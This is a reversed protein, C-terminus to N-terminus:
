PANLFKSPRYDLSAIEPFWNRKVLLVTVLGIFSGAIVDSLFHANLIVRSFAIVAAFSFFAWWLRPWFLIVIMAAVFITQSHGSPFSNYSWDVNLPSLGYEERSLLHKPRVRGLLRKLSHVVIGSMAYCILSFLGLRAWNAYFRAIPLPANRLMMARGGVFLVVSLFLYFEAQGIKTINRWLPKASASVLEDMFLALQRDGYVFLLGTVGIVIASWALFTKLRTLAWLRAVFSPQVSASPNQTM